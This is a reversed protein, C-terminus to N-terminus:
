PNPISTKGTDFEPCGRNLRMNVGPGGLGIFLLGYERLQIKRFFVLQFFFDPLLQEAVFVVRLCLVM